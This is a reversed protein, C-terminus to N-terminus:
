RSVGIIMDKLEKLLTNYKQLRESDLRQSYYDKIMQSRTKSDKDDLDVIWWWLKPGFVNEEFSDISLVSKTQLTGTLDVEFYKKHHEQLLYTDRKFFIQARVDKDSKYFPNFFMNTISPRAVFIGRMSLDQEYERINIKIKDKIEELLQDFFWYKALEIDNKPIYREGNYEIRVSQELTQTQM